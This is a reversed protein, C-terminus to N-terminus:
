FDCYFVRNGHIDNKALLRSLKATVKGPFGSVLFSPESNPKVISTRIQGKQDFIEGEIVSADNGLCPRVHVGAERWSEFDDVFAASQLTEMHYILTVVHGNGAYAQVPAWDVVSRMPGIGTGSAVLILDKGEELSLGLKDEDHFLSQFGKGLVNSSEFQEGPAMDGLGLIGGVNRDVLIEVKSASLFASEKHAQYPTSSLCVREKKGEENRVVIYQGPNNFDDIWRPNELRELSPTSGFRRGSLQRVDDDVSLLL